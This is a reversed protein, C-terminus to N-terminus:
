EEGLDQVESLAERLAAFDKPDLSKVMKFTFPGTYDGVRILQKAALRAQFNMPASTSVDLEADLIDETTVQRVEFDMYTKDKIQMGKIFPKTLTNPNENSM